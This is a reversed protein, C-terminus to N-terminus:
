ASRGSVSGRDTHGNLLGLGRSVVYSVGASAILGVGLATFVTALTAIADTAESNRFNPGGPGGFSLNSSGILIFLGVGLAVCVLGTQLARLIRAAPGGEQELSLADLFKTGGNTNLFEGFERASGIRELLKGHFDTAMRLQQRRRFGDVIVYVVWAVTAMMAPLVIIEVM